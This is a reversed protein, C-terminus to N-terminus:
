YISVKTIINYYNKIPKGNDLTKFTHDYLKELSEVDEFRLCVVLPEHRFFSNKLFEKVNEKEDLTMPVIKYQCIEDNSNSM